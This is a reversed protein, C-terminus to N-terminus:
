TFFMDTSRSTDMKKLVMMVISPRLPRYLQHQVIKPLTRVRWPPPRVQGPLQAELEDHKGAQQDDVGGEEEREIECSPQLAPVLITRPVGPLQLFQQQMVLRWEHPRAVADEQRRRGDDDRGHHTNGVAGGHLDQAREEHKKHNREEKPPVPRVSAAREDEGGHEKRKRYHLEEGQRIPDLQREQRANTTESHTQSRKM